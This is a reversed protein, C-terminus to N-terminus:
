SLYLHNAGLYLHNTGLYLYDYKFIPIFWKFRPVFWKYRDEFWKYRPIFSKFSPVFSKFIPIFWKYRPGFIQLYTYINSYINIRREMYGCTNRLIRLFATKVVSYWLTTLSPGAEEFLTTRYWHMSPYTSSGQLSSFIHPTPARRNTLRKWVVGDMDRWMYPHFITSTDYLLLYVIYVLVASFNNWENHYLQVEEEKM